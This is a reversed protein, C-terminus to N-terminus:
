GAVMINSCDGCNPICYGRTKGCNCVLNPGKEDDFLLAAHHKVILIEDFVSWFRSINASKSRRKM